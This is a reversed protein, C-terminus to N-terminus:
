RQARAITNEDYDVRTIEWRYYTFRGSELLWSVEGHTPVEVDEFRQWANMTVEWATIRADKGDSMYRLAEMRTPRGEADFTFWAPVSMGGYTMFARASDRDNAEWRIYPELAASPFWVLEGLFRLLTGQDIEPGRADVIPWLGAADIRMHGRGSVYSDRGLVPLVGFMRLSVSWVFAPDSIRFYQEARAQMFTQDPATRLEGRQRLRVFRARPRGVIGSRTLWRRVPEPLAALDTATVVSAPTRPLATLESAIRRTESQFHARAGGLVLACALGLNVWTGYKAASWASSILLQSLIVAGIGVIWWSPAQWAVLVAVVLLAVCAVLWAARLASGGVAAPIPRIFGIAHILAHVTIVLSLAIRM